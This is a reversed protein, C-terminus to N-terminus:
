KKRQGFFPQPIAFIRVNKQQNQKGTLVGYSKGSIFKDLFLSLVHGM